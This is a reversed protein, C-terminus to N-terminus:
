QESLEVALELGLPNISESKYRLPTQENKGLNVRGLKEKLRFTLAEFSGHSPKLTSERWLEASFDREFHVELSLLARERNMQWKFQAKEDFALAQFVFALILEFCENSPATKFQFAQRDEQVDSAILFDHRELTMKLVEEVTKFFTAFSQYREWSQWAVLAQRSQDLAERLRQGEDRIKTVYAPQQGEQILEDTCFQIVHVLGSLKHLKYAVLDQIFSM